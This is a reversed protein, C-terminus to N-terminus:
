ENEHLTSQRLEERRQHIQIRAAEPNFQPTLAYWRLFTRLEAESLEQDKHNAMRDIVRDINIDLPDSVSVDFEVNAVLQRDGSRRSVANNIGANLHPGFRELRDLTGLYVFSLTADLAHGFADNEEHSSEFV